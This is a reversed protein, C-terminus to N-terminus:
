VFFICVAIGCISGDNGYRRAQLIGNQQAYCNYKASRVADVVADEAIDCTRFCPFVSPDGHGLPVVTRNDDKNLNDM